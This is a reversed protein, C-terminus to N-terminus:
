DLYPGAENKLEKMHANVLDRIISSVSPRGGERRKRAYAVAQLVALQDRELVVATTVGGASAEPAREKARAAAGVVGSGKRTAM